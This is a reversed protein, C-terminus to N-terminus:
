VTGDTGGDAASAGTASGAPVHRAVAVACSLCRMRFQYELQVAAIALARAL